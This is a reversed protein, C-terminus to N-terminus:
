KIVIQIPSEILEWEFYMRASYITAFWLLTISSYIIFYSEFYILFNLFYDSTIVGFIVIDLISTLIALGLVLFLLYPIGTITFLEKRSQMIAYYMGLLIGTLVCISGFLLGEFYTSISAQLFIHQWIMMASFPIAITMTLILYFTAIILIILKPILRKIVLYFGGLVLGMFLTSADFFPIIFIFILTYAIYGVNFYKRTRLSIVSMITAGM